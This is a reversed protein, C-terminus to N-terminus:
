DRLRWVNIKECEYLFIGTKFLTLENRSFKVNLCVLICPLIDCDYFEKMVVFVISAFKCVM